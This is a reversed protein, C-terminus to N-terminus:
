EGGGGVLGDAGMSVVGFGGDSQPLEGVHAVLETALEGPGGPIAVM